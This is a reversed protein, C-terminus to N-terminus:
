LATDETEQFVQRNNCAYIEQEPQNTPPSVPQQPTEAVPEDDGVEENGNNRKQRDHCQSNKRGANQIRLKARIKQVFVQLLTDGHDCINRLM